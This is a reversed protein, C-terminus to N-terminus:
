FVKCNGKFSGEMVIFPGNLSGNLSMRVVYDGEVYTGKVKSINVYSRLGADHIVYYHNQPSGELTLQTLSYDNGQQQDLYYKGEKNEYSGLLITFHRSLVSDIRGYVTLNDKEGIGQIQGARQITFITEGGEINFKIGNDAQGAFNGRGEEYSTIEADKKCSGTFIFVALLLILFPRNMNAREFKCFDKVQTKIVKTLAHAM